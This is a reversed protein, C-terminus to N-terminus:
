PSPDARKKRKRKFAAGAAAIAGMILGKQRLESRVLAIDARLEKGEETLMESIDEVKSLIRLVSMLVLAALVSLIITAVTAVVFFIDMKLFEDM